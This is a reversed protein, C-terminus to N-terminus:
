PAGGILFNEYDRKRRATAPCLLMAVARTTFSEATRVAVLADPVRGLHGERWGARWIGALSAVDPAGIM